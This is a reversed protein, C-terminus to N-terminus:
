GHASPHHFGPAVGTPDWLYRPAVAADHSQTPQTAHHMQTHPHDQASSPMQSRHNMSAAHHHDLGLSSPAHFAVFASPLQLPSYAGASGGPHIIPSVSSAHHFPHVQMHEHFTIDKEPM